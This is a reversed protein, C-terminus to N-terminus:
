LSFCSSLCFILTKFSIQIDAYPFSTIREAPFLADSRDANRSLRHSALILQLFRKPFRSLVRGPPINRLQKKQCFSQSLPLRSICFGNLYLSVTEKCYIKWFILAGYCSTLKPMWRTSRKPPRKRRLKPESSKQILKEQLLVLNM